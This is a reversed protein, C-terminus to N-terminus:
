RRWTRLNWIDRIAKATLGHEAALDSSLAGASKETNYKSLFLRMVTEADLQTRKRGTQQQQAVNAAWYPPPLQTQSAEATRSIPLATLNQPQQHEYQLGPVQQTVQLRNHTLHFPLSSTENSMAQQVSMMSSFNLFPSTSLLGRGTGLATHSLPNVLGMSLPLSRDMNISQQRQFRALGVAQQPACGADSASATEGSVAASLSQLACSDVSVGESDGSIIRPVVM